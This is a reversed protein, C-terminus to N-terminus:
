QVRHRKLSAGGGRTRTGVALAPTYFSTDAGGSWRSRHVLRGGAAEGDEDADDTDELQDVSKATAFNPPTLPVPPIPIEVEILRRRALM